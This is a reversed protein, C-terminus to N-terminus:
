PALPWAISSPPTKRLATRTGPSEVQGGSGYMVSRAKGAAHGRVLAEPDADDADSEDFRPAVVDFPIRLQTLIARRQPSTSALLLPASPATM